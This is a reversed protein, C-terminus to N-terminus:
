KCGRRHVSAFCWQCFRFRLLHIHGFIRDQVACQIVTPNAGNNMCLAAAALLYNTMHHLLLIEKMWHWLHVAPEKIWSEEELAFSVSLLILFPYLFIEPEEDVRFANRRHCCMRRHRRRRRWGSAHKVQRQKSASIIIIIVICWM